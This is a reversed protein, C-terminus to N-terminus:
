KKPTTKTKLKKKASAKKQADSRIKKRTTKGARMRSSVERELKKADRIKKKMAKIEEASSVSYDKGDVAPIREVLSALNLNNSEAYNKLYKVSQSLLQTPTIEQKKNIKLEGAFGYVATEMDSNMKMFSKINETGVKKVAIKKKASKKKKKTAMYDGM